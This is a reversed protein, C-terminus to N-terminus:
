SPPRCGIADMLAPDYRGGEELGFPGDRLVWVTWGWGNARIARSIDRLWRVRSSEGSPTKMAGFETFVIRGPELGRAVEWQKLAQFQAKISRDDAYQSYYHRIADEARRTLDPSKGAGAARVNALVRDLSGADAPYPLGSILPMIDLTWDAGQHTFLFPEYFHVSVFMRPDQLAGAALNALGEIKSWCGGTLGLWLNPGSSRLRSVIIDQYAMWDAKGTKNCIRQPENMAELALGDIRWRNMEAAFREAIQTYRRFKPGNLDDLQDEPIQRNRAPAVLTVITNLDDRKLNEVFSRFVPLFQTWQRGDSDDLFPGVDVPLRVHDFGSSKLSRTSFHTEAGTRGPFPQEAYGEGNVVPFTFLQLSVGKHFPAPEAAAQLPLLILLLICFFAQAVPSVSYGDVMRVKMTNPLFKCPAPLIQTVM